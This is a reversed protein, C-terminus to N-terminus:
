SYMIQCTYAWVATFCFCIINLRKWHLNAALQIIRHLIYVSTQWATHAGFPDSGTISNINFSQTNTFSNYTM